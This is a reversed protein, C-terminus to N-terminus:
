IILNEGEDSTTCTNRVATYYLLSIVTGDIAMDHWSFFISKKMLFEDTKM